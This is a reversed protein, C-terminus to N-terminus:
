FFPEAFPFCVKNTGEQSPPTSHGIGQTNSPKKLRRKASSEVGSPPGRKQPTVAKLPEDGLSTPLLTPAKEGVEKNKEKDRQAMEGKLNQIAEKAQELEKRLEQIDERDKEREKEVIELRENMKAVELKLGMMDDDEEEGKDEQKQNKKQEQDKTTDMEEYNDKHKNYQERTLKPPTTVPFDSSTSDCFSPLDTRLAEM